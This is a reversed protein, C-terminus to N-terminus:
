NESDILRDTTWSRYNNIASLICFLLIGEAMLYPELSFGYLFLLLFIILFPRYIGKGLSILMEFLYFGYIFLGILGFSILISIYSNHAQLGTGFFSSTLYGNGFILRFADFQSIANLLQQQIVYRGGGSIVGPEEFRMLVGDFIGMQFLIIGVSAIAIISLLFTKFRKLNYWLYLMILVILMVFSTRSEFYSMTVAALLGSASLFVIYKRTLVSKYMTLLTFIIAISIIVFFAAYNPDLNIMGRELSSVALIPLVEICFVDVAVIYATLVLRLDPENTIFLPFLLYAVCMWWFDLDYRAFSITWFLSAVMILVFLLISLRIRYEKKLALLGFALFLLSSAMCIQPNLSYYYDVTQSFGGYMRTPLINLLIYAVILAAPRRRYLVFITGLITVQLVVSMMHRYPIHNWFYGIFALIIIFMWEKGTIFPGKIMETKEITMSDPSNM